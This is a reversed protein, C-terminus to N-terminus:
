HTIKLNNIIPFAKQSFCQLDQPHPRELIGHPPGGRLKYPCARASPSAFGMRALVLPSIWDPAIIM